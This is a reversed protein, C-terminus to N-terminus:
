RTATDAYAEEGYQHTATFALPIDRALGVSVEQQPWVEASDQFPLRIYGVDDPSESSKCSFKHTSQSLLLRANLAGRYEFSAHLHKGRTKFYCFLRIGPRKDNISILLSM